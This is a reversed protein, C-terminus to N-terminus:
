EFLKAKEEMYRASRKVGAAGLGVGSTVFRRGSPTFMFYGAAIGLGIGILM